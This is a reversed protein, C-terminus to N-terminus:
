TRADRLASELAKGAVGGPGCDGYDLAMEIASVLRDFMNARHLMEQCLDNNGGKVLEAAIRSNLPISGDDNATVIMSHAIVYKM